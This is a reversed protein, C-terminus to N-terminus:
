KSAITLTLTISAGAAGLAKHVYVRGDNGVLVPSKGGTKTLDLVGFVDYNKSDREPSAFTASLAPASSPTLSGPKAM